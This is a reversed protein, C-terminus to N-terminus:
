ARHRSRTLGVVERRWQDSMGLSGALILKDGGGVVAADYPKVERLVEARAAWGYGSMGIAQGMPRTRSPLSAPQQLLDGEDEFYKVAALAQPDDYAHVAVRVVVDM